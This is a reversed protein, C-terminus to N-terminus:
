KPDPTVVVHGAIAAAALQIMASYAPVAPAVFQVLIGAIALRTSPEKLRQIIYNM